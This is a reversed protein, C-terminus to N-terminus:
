QEDHDLDQYLGMTDLTYTTQSVAEHDDCIIPPRNTDIRTQHLEKIIYVRWGPSDQIQKIDVFGFMPEARFKDKFLKLFNQRDGRKIEFTIIGHYHINFNKTHEAIISVRHGISRLLTFIRMYTLDYQEVSTFRYTKPHLTVTFSYEVSEGATKVMM